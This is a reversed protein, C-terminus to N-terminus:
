HILIHEEIITLPITRKNLGALYEEKMQKKHEYMAKDARIYIDNATKDNESDYFAVGIACNFGWKDIVETKDNKLNNLIKLVSTNKMGTFVVVYEDGGIRYLEEQNGIHKAIVNASNKIYEDGIKHGMLNNFVKLNNLDFTMIAINKGEKILSDCVSLQHEFAMRNKYGTLIDLFSLRKYIDETSKNMSFYTFVSLLLILSIILTSSYTFMQQYSSYIHDLSFEMAVVGIVENDNEDLLPWFINYIRGNETIHTESVYTKEQISYNFEELLEGTPFEGTSYRQGNEDISIIYLNSINTTSELNDIKYRIKESERISYIDEYTINNFIYNRAINAKINIDDIFLQYTFVYYLGTISSAIFLISLILIILSRKILKRKM